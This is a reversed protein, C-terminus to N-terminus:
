RPAGAQLAARYASDYAARALAWTAHHAAELAPLRPTLASVSVGERAAARAVALALADLQPGQVVLQHQGQREDWRAASVAPDDALRVALRRADSAHVVLEPAAGPALEIPLPLGPRRSFRGGELLLASEALMSADRVSSTTCLVCAHPAIAALRELVWPRPLPTALPEYLALLAADPLGLALLLAIARREDAALSRTPREGLSSTGAEDLLARASARGGLAWDLAARATPAPPLDEEALLAGIRLRTGPSRHPEKGNVLVRGRRARLVGACLSMLEATGDAPRGLVVHCGQGLAIDAGALPSAVVAQLRLLPVDSM